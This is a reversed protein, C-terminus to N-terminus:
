APAVTNFPLLAEIDTVTKAHPLQEFLRRLYAYTATEVMGYLAASAKAGKVTDAFLWNRRGLAFLGSPMRPAHRRESHPMAECNAFLSIELGSLSFSSM